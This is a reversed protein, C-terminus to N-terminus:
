KEVNATKKFGSETRFVPRTLTENQYNQYNPEFNTNLSKLIYVM